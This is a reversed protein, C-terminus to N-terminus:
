VSWTQTQTFLSSTSSKGASSICMEPNQLMSLTKTNTFLPEHFVSEHLNKMQTSKDGMLRSTFASSNMEEEDLTGASGTFSVAEALTVFVETHLCM